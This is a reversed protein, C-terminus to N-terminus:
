IKSLSADGLTDEGGRGPMYLRIGPACALSFCVCGLMLQQIMIPLAIRFLRGYFERNDIAVPKDAAHNNTMTDM